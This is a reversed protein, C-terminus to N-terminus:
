AAEQEIADKAACKDLYHDIAMDYCKALEPYFASNLTVFGRLEDFDNGSNLNWGLISFVCGGPMSNGVQTSSDILRILAGFTLPKLSSRVAVQFEGEHEDVIRYVIRGKVRRARVSTVDQMVSAVVIRAIEIEDDELTPLYEGGMFAPHGQGLIKRTSDDLQSETIWDGWVLPDFDGSVLRAEVDKRREEGLISAVIITNPALNEFYSAPRYGYDFGSPYRTVPKTM